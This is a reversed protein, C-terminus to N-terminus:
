LNWVDMLTMCFLVELIDKYYLVDLEGASFIYVKVLGGFAGAGADAYM